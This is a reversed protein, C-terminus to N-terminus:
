SGAVAAFGVGFVMMAIVVLISLVSLAIGIWGTIVGAKAMSGPEGQGLVVGLISGVLPCIGILGLIGFVLAAIGKGTDEQTM